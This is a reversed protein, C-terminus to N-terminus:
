TTAPKAPVAQPAPESPPAAPVTLNVIERDNFAVEILTTVGRQSRNLGKRFHVRWILDGLLQDIGEVTTAIYTELTEGPKLETGLKQDKLDWSSGEILDMPLVHTSNDAKSSVPCVFNSSRFVGLRKAEELRSNVLSFDLPVFTQDQSVNEIKLHLKLVPGKPPMPNKAQEAADYHVLEVLDRTVKVPTVKLSGYRQSEGLKLTHLPNMPTGPPVTILSTKKGDAAGTNYDPLSELKDNYLHATRSQYVLYLCALTMASAYSVVLMFLTSSVGTSEPQSVAAKAPTAAIPTPVPKPPVEVAPRELQFTAAQAVAHDPVSFTSPHVEASEPIDITRTIDDVSASPSATNGAAFPTMIAMTAADASVAPESGPFQQTVDPPSSIPAADLLEGDPQAAKLEDAPLALTAELPEFTPPHAEFETSFIPTSPPVQPSESAVPEVSVPVVAPTEPVAVAPPEAPAVPLVASWVPPTELPAPQPLLVPPAADAPAPLDGPTQLHVGCHPCAVVSGAVEAMLRGQCQGCTLEIAM